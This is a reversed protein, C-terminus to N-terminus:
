PKHLIINIAQEAQINLDKPLIKGLLSMYAVPNEKAQRALYEQGGVDDLAGRIMDKLEVGMKNPVGKRSGGKPQPRKKPVKEANHRDSM